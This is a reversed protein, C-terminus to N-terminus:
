ACKRFLPISAGRICERRVTGRRRINYRGCHRRCLHDARGHGGYRDFRNGRRGNGAFRHVRGADVGAVTRRRGRAKDVSCTTEGACVVFCPAAIPRENYKIERALSTLFLGAESSEGELFTTLVMCPVGMEQAAHKAATCSDALNGMLFTTMKDPAIDGPTEQARSDDFLYSVVSQPLTERLDYNIIMERANQITTQDGGFPTGHFEAPLARDKSEKKGVADSIQFSILEAGIKHCILEALRGGNTRSIHRRVANIELIKAGSRLLMDQTKIEDELTIGEIPYTLLASSGGSCVSIFLDEPKAQLILDIMKQAALMGEENPLPHGASMFTPTATTIRSRKLRSAFTGKTIREGLVDCVAQALAQM